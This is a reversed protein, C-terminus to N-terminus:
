IVVSPNNEFRESLNCCAAKFLEKETMIQTRIPNLASLYTSRLKSTIVVESLKKDTGLIIKLEKKDTVSLTDSAFGTYSVVLSSKGAQQPINFVGSSDTITGNDTGLWIISAGTLPTFIGKKNSELVVGKIFNVPPSTVIATDSKISDIKQPTVKIEGGESAQGVEKNGDTGARPPLRPNPSDMTEMERYHCCQPLEIYVATKAKKTELDHGAAVIRNQIKELNTQSPNYILSLKKSEIDWVGSKVGRGKIATEIRQKCQECVGYVKFSITTDQASPKNSQSYSPIGSFILCVMFIFKYLKM